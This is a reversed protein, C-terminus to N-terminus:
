GSKCISIHTEDLPIPVVGPLGPDASTENVVLV